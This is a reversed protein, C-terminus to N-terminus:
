LLDLRGGSLSAIASEFGLLVTVPLSARVRAKDCM